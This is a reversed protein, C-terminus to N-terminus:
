LIWINDKEDKEWLYITISLLISHFIALIGFLLVMFLSNIFLLTIIIDCEVFFANWFFNFNDWKM